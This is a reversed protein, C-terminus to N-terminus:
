VKLYKRVSLVSGWIGLVLGIGILLLSLNPAIEKLPLLRFLLAKEELQSYIVFLIVTPVVSGILGLIAGEIFFPWRIFHNTAGVMKMIAIEKRRTFITLKITNAILFMATFALLIVFVIGINRILRTYYFLNEVTDKGYDVKMIPQTEKGQNLAEIQGAVKGVDRPESVEVTFADPLPNNNKEDFGELLKQGNKGLTKQFIKFGEEKPVFTVKSVEPILGIENQLSLVVDQPVDVDLFVRIEVEKEVQAALHNVNLALMVFIGLILLSIAIAGASAFTMWGNRVVSKVGERVHRTM